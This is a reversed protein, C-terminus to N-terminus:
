SRHSLGVIDGVRKFEKRKLYGGIGTSIAGFVSPSHTAVATGIQVATAGALLYETADQWNAVGGCGILPVKVAQYLEYVCRLAIPKTTPGSLGGVRNHLIPMMTEIDIVIARVTNAVTLADAGAKEASKGIEVISTVNPSLKVFVPVEVIAKVKSVVSRLIRPDQGIESGTKKVHPCSVNLEIADAGADVATKAVEAYEEPSYGYMSVVFPVTLFQKVRRIESVFEEIGPNPLGLANVLGGDVQVITPNAYGKRPKAGISKSVIAGAGNKEIMQMTERTYGLIGSALMTPNDLRLGALDVCLPNIRLDLLM